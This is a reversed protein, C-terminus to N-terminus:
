FSGQNQKYWNEIYTKNGNPTSIINGKFWYVSKAITNVWYNEPKLLKEMLKNIQFPGKKLQPKKQNRKVCSKAEVIFACSFACLCSRTV